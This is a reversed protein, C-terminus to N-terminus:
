SYDNTYMSELREEENTNICDLYKPRRESDRFWFSHDGLQLPLHNAELWSRRCTLLLSTSTIHRARHEPRYYFDDEKYKDEEHDYPLCAFYFVM